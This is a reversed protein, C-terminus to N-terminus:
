GVEKSLRAELQKQAGELYSSAHKFSHFKKTRVFSIMQSRLGELYYYNDKWMTTSLERDDKLIGNQTNLAGFNQSYITKGEHYGFRLWTLGDFIEAGSLFYLTTSLTDLSGFIHIPISIGADDLARRFTGIQEMRTMVKSGLERETFGIVSFSSLQKIMPIINSVAIFKGKAEPKFLIEPAFQPFEAFLKSASEIQMATSVHRKPSDFSVAVTPRQVNWRSLIKKYMPLNWKEPIYNQGYSESLDHEVRAEYGGSDLFIVKPFRLQNAAFKKYHADYASVLTSGDIFESMYKITSRLDPFGKSSFSPVLLPTNSLIKGEHLIKGERALM